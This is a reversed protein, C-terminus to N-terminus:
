KYLFNYKFYIVRIVLSHFNVQVYLLNYLLLITTLNKIEMGTNKILYNYLEKLNIDDNHMALEIESIKEVLRPCKQTVDIM